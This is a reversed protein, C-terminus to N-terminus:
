LASADGLMWRYQDLENSTYCSSAYTAQTCNGDYKKADFLVIDTADAKPLHIARAAYIEAEQNGTSPVVKGVVTDENAFVHGTSARQAIDVKLGAFTTDSEQLAAKPKVTLYAYTRKDFSIKYFTPNGATPTPHMVEFKAQGWTPPYRFKLGITTNSFQLWGKFAKTKAIQESDKATAQKVSDETAQQANYDKNINKQAHYVFWGTFALIGVLVLVLLAEVASFGSANKLKNM